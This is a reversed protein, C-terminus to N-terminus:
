ENSDSGKWLGLIFGIIFYISCLISIIFTEKNM